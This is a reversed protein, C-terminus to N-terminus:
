MMLEGSLLNLSYFVKILYAGGSMFLSDVRKGEPHYGKEKILIKRWTQFSEGKDSYGHILIIPHPM